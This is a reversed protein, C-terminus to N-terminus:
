VAFDDLNENAHKRMEPLGGKRWCVPLVMNLIVFNSRKHAMRLRSMVRQTFDGFDCFFSILQPPIDVLTRMPWLPAVEILTETHIGGSSLLEFMRM